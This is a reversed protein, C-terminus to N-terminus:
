GRVPLPRFRSFMVLIAGALFLRNRLSTMGRSACFGSLMSKTPFELILENQSFRVLAGQQYVIVECSLCFDHCNGPDRLGAPPVVVDPVARSESREIGAVLQHSFNRKPSNGFSM